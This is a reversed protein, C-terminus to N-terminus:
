AAGPEPPLTFAFASGAGIKSTATLHGGHVEILRKSIYLGLGTGSPSGARERRVFKRFLGPLQAEPIGEGEDSVTVEVGAGAARTRITIKGKETYKLANEVLNTLVQAVKDADAIVSPVKGIPDLEVSHNESRPGLDRAVRAAVESVDVPQLRLKLRGSELRSIDLLEDLLRKVRDADQNVAGLFSKKDDDSFLDWRKLIMQTYGKISTLPSRIEHSVTSILEVTRLDMRRQARADRIVCVVQRVVGREDKVYSCRMSVPLWSGSPRVLEYEREPLGKSMEARRGVPLCEGADRGSSDRLTMFNVSPKGVAEQRSTALLAEAARNLWAIRRGEGVVVVADPLSELVQDPLGM